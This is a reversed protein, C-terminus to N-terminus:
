HISMLVITTKLGGGMTTQKTAAALWKGDAEDEKQTDKKLKTKAPNRQAFIHPM